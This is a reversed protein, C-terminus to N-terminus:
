GKWAQTFQRVYKGIMDGELHVEDGVKLAGLTTVARTHPILSV